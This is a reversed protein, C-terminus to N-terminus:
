NITVVDKQRPKASAEAERQIRAKKEEELRKKEEGPRLSYYAIAVITFGQAALRARMWKNQTEGADDRLHLLASRLSVHDLKNRMACVCSYEYKFQLGSVCRGLIMGSAGKIFSRLGGGLILVTTALGIPIIPHELMRESYQRLMLGSCCCRMSSVQTWFSPTANPEYWTEYKREPPPVGTAM